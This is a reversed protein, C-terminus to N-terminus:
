KDKKEEAEVPVNNRHACRKLLQWLRPPVSPCVFHFFLGVLISWSIIAGCIPNRDVWGAVGSKGEPIEEPEPPDQIEEIGRRLVWSQDAFEKALSVNGLAVIINDFMIGGQMTWLDFGVADISPFLAPHKDFFYNPNEMQRPTWEGKYEPNDIVPAEWKGVFKPNEIMPHQWKGCGVAKCVPNDILVPEWVGDETDDWDDPKREKPDHIKLPEHDLWGEPKKVNPDPLAEPENEDGWDDPKNANPDDIYEEEVWSAPKMDTPDDIHRPPNIPPEFHDFLSGSIKTEGDVQVEFNNDPQV